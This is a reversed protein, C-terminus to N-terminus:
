GDSPGGFMDSLRVKTEHGAREEADVALPKVQEYYKVLEDGSSQVKIRGYLIATLVCMAAPLRAPDLDGRIAAGLLHAEANKAADVILDIEGNTWQDNRM